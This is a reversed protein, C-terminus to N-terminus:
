TQRRPETRRLIAMVDQSIARLNSAIDVTAGTRDIQDELFQALTVGIAALQAIGQAM